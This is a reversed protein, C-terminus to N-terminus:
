VEGVHAVDEHKKLGKEEFKTLAMTTGGPCFSEKFEVGKAAVSTLCTTQLAKLEENCQIARLAGVGRQQDDSREM